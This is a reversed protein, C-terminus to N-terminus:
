CTGWYSRIDFIEGNLNRNWCNIKFQGTPIEIVGKTRTEFWTPYLKIVAKVNRLWRSNDQDIYNFM